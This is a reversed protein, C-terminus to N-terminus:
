KERVLEYADGDAFETMDVGTMMMEGSKCFAWYTQDVDYDALMGNVKKVYLGFEGVDGEILKEALLAEGVTEADTHLTFVVSREGAKVTVTLKKAGSGLETDATYLADAWLGDAAGSQPAEKSQCAFLSLCLVGACLLALLRKTWTKM